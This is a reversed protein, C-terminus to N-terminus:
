PGRGTRHEVLKGDRITFLEDAHSM